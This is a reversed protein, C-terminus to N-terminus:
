KTVLLRRDPGAPSAAEVRELRCPSEPAEVRSSALDLHVEGRNALPAGPDTLGLVPQVEEVAPGEAVPDLVVLGLPPQPGHRPGRVGVGGEGPNVPIRASPNVAESRISSGLHKWDLMQMIIRRLSPTPWNKKEM